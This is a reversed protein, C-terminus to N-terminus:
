RFNRYLRVIEAKEEDLSDEDLSGVRRDLETISAFEGILEKHINKGDGFFYFHAKLFSFMGADTELLEAVCDKVAESSEWEKWRSLVHALKANNALSGDKAAKRIKEVCIEKLRSVEERSLM